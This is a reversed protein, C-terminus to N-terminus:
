TSGTEKHIIDHKLMFATHHTMDIGLQCCFIILMHASIGALNQEAIFDSLIWQSNCTLQQRRYNQKIKSRSCMWDKMSHELTSWTRLISLKTLQSYDWLWACNIICENLVVRNLRHYLLLVLRSKSFCSVTLPQPMLQATHLDAGWELCIVMGSKVPQIGKRGGLWCRWLV